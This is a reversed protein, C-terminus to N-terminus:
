PIVLSREGLNQIKKQYKWRFALFIEIDTNEFTKLYNNGKSDYKGWM